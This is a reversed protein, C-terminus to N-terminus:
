IGNIVNCGNSVDGCANCVVCVHKDGPNTESKVISKDPIETKFDRNDEELKVKPVDKIDSEFCFEEIGDDM